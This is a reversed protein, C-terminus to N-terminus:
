PGPPRDTGRLVAVRSRLSRWWTHFLLAVAVVLVLVQFIRRIMTENRLRAGCRASTFGDIRVPRSVLCPSEFLAGAATSSPLGQGEGPPGLLHCQRMIFSLCARQERLGGNPPAQRVPVVGRRPQDRAAAPARAPVRGRPGTALCGRRRAGQPAQSSALAPNARPKDRVRM